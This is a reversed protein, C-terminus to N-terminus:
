LKAFFTWRFLRSSFGAKQINKTIPFVSNSLKRANVEISLLGLSPSVKKISPIIGTFFVSCM